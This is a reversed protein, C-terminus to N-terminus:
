FIHQKLFMTKYSRPIEWGANLLTELNFANMHLCSAVLSPDKEAGECPVTMIEVIAHGSVPDEYANLHHYAFFAETTFTRVVKWSRKDLVKLAFQDGRDNTALYVVGM